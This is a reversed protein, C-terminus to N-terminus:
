AEEVDWRMGQARLRVALESGLASAPTWVGGKGPGRTESLLIATETLMKATEGYGPDSTGWVHCVAEPRDGGAWGFVRIRFFGAERAERPPGEGPKPLVKSLLSRGLRGASAVGVFAGLGATLGASRAFGAPGSGLGMVEAYRFDRGYPHGLVANTRRVVRTNVAAMVFPGTWSKADRDFEVGIKDGRDPGRDNTRDPILAYPDAMLRRAERDRGGLEMLNLMSAATGGSFGGKTKGVVMKARTLSRGTKAFHEHLLFVGLDSPISDFGCCPVIRAGSREAAGQCTDIVDRVFPVEGTLDCYDTGETACAKALPLGFKAYPGVTTIVVESRAAISRLAAEDGADAILLPLEALSNEIGTIDSRVAALKQASRGALAWSLGAGKRRALAEAVLAGTFGTAGFLVLDFERSM